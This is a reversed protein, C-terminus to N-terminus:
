LLHETPTREDALGTAPNVRSEFLRRAAIKDILTELSKWGLSELHERLITDIPVRITRIKVPGVFIAVTEVREHNNNLFYALSKFYTDYIRLLKPHNLSEVKRRLERYTKSLVEV